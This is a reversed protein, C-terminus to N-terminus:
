RPGDLEGAKAATVFAGWEAGTFALPPQDPHKSDRVQVVDGTARVEVCEGAVCRSPRVWGATM